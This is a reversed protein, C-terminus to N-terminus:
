PARGKRKRTRKRKRKKSAAATNQETRAKPVVVHVGEKGAEGNGNGM